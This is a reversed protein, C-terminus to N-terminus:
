GCLRPTKGPFALSHIGSGFEVGVFVRAVQWWVHVSGLTVRYPKEDVMKSENRQGHVVAPM